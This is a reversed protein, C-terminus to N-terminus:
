VLITITQKTIVKSMTYGNAKACKFCIRDDTEDLRWIAAANLLIKPNTKNCIFCSSETNDERSVIEEAETQHLFVVVNDDSCNRRKALMRPKWGHDGFENVAYPYARVLLQIVSLSPGGQRM